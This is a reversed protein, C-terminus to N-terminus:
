GRFNIQGTKTDILFSRHCNYHSLFGLVAERFDPFTWTEHKGALVADTTQVLKIYLLEELLDEALRFFGQYPLNAKAVALQKSPLWVAGLGYANDNPDKGIVFPPYRNALGTEALQILRKRAPYSIVYPACITPDVAAEDSTLGGTRFMQSSHQRGLVVGVLWSLLDINNYRPDLYRNDIRLLPLRFHKCIKNKLNDRTQQEPEQHAPGDFEVAFLPAFGSDVVLFDLHAKLAYSYEPESIGSREIPVVDSLRVKLYVHVGEPKCVQRLRKNTQEEYCNVLRKLTM